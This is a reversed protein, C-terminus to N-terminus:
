EFGPSALESFFLGNCSFAAAKLLRKGRKRKKEMTTEGNM